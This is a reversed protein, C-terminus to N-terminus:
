RYRCQSPDTESGDGTFQDKNSATGNGTGVGTATFSTGIDNGNPGIATFDTTGVSVITYVKGITFNGATFTQEPITFTDTDNTREFVYVKNEGPAGAIIKSGDKSFKVNLDNHAQVQPVM